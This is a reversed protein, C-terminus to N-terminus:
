AETVSDRAKPSSAVVVVGDAAASGCNVASISHDLCYGSYYREAIRPKSEEAAVAPYSAVSINRALRYHSYCKKSVRFKLAAVVVGALISRDRGPSKVASISRLNKIFIKGEWVGNECGAVVAAPVPVPMPVSVPVPLPVPMPSAAAISAVTTSASCSISSFITWCAISFSSPAM